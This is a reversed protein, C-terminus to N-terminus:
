VSVGEGLVVLDRSRLEIRRLRDMAVSLAGARAM